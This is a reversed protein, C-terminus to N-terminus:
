LKKYIISFDITGDISSFHVNKYSSDYIYASPVSVIPVVSNDNALIQLAKDAANAAAELDDASNLEDVAKDYEANNLGVVGTAEDSSFLNLIDIVSDSLPVFAVTYDGRRVASIVDSSSSEPSIYAGLDSQWGSTLSGLVDKVESDSQNFLVGFSPVSSPKNQNIAELYLKRAETSDYKATHEPFTLCSSATSDMIISDPPIIDTAVKFRESMKSAYLERHISMAFANILKEDLKSKNFVLAYNKRYKVDIVYNDTNIGTYDEGTATTMGIEKDKIRVVNSKGTQSETLVVYEAVAGDTDNDINRELKIYKESSWLSVRYNGNTLIYEAGLGYKGGCEEFFKQNCPMFVPTTLKYLFSNDPETLEIELTKSDIAKIGLETDSGNLREAVGKIGSIQKTFPTRTEPDAARKVAFVFDDATLPEGNEWERDNLIFTFKLGDPSVEYSKAADPVTKDEADTKFLGSFCNKAALLESFSTALAPDLNTPMKDIGYYITFDEVVSCGGLATLSLLIIMLLLILSVTRKIYM